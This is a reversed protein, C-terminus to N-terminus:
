TRVDLSDGPRGLDAMLRGSGRVGALDTLDTLNSLNGPPVYQGRSVREIEGDTTM